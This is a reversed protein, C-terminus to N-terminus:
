GPCHRHDSDSPRCGQLIESITTTSEIVMICDGVWLYPNGVADFTVTRATAGQSVAIRAAIEECEAPTTATDSNVILVKDTLLNYYDASGYSANGHCIKGESTKGLVTITRYLEADDIEYGLSAIDKGEEFVWAAYVYSVYVTAGDGIAGGPIRTIQWPTDKNGETVTYDTDKVYETGTQGAGSWLRISATIVPYHELEDPTTGGLTVEEDAAEPQRDTVYHFYLDGDRGCYYEYNFLGCLQDFAEAYSQHTFAISDITLGSAETHIEGSEWGARIALDAFIYEPSKGTYTISRKGTLSTVTQDLARKLYDRSSFTIEPVSKTKESIKDILGAFVEELNEGYGIRVSFPNNPWIVNAWEGAKDPSFAGGKNDATIAAAGASNKSPEVTLSKVPLVAAQVDMGAVYVAGLGNLLLYGSNTVCLVFNYDHKPVVEGSDSFDSLQTPSTACQYITANNVTTPGYISGIAYIYDDDSLLTTCTFETSSGTNEKFAESWTIGDASRLMYRYNTVYNSRWTQWLYGDFFAFNRSAPLTYGDLPGDGDAYRNTWTIGDSSTAIGIQGTLYGYSSGYHPYGLIWMGDMFYPITPGHLDTAGYVTSGDWSQSRVTGHLAWDSGDKLASKYILVKATNDINTKLYSVVFYLNDDPGWFVTAHPTYIDTLVAAESSVSDDQGVFMEYDAIVAQYIIGPSTGRSYMYLISGNELEVASPYYNANSTDPRYPTNLSQWDYYNATPQGQIEVQALARNDGVYLKSRIAAREEPTYPLLM